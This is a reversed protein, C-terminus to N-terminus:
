LTRLPMIFYAGERDDGRVVPHVAYGLSLKLHHNAKNEGGSHSRIQYCGLAKAKSIVEIQLARGFGRNQHIVPVGFALVKTETLTKGQHQLLPCDADPGIAQVAFRLFGVIEDSELAVLIHSSIHFDFSCTAWRRQDEADIVVMLDDWHPHTHGWEEITVQM